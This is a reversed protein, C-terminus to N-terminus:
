ALAAKVVAWIEEVILQLMECHACHDGYTGCSSLMEDIRAVTAANLTKM